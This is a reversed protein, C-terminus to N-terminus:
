TLYPVDAFDVEYQILLGNSDAKAIKKRVEQIFMKENNIGGMRRASNLYFYQGARWGQTFSNFTGTLNPYGYRYLLMDGRANAADITSQSLAQETHAYEYRGDGNGDAAAAAQQAEPDERMIVTDQLYYMTVVVPVGQAPAFNLRLLHQSYNIFASTTDSTNQGPAGDIFDRKIDMPVGGVTVRVDGALRSPQYGLNWQTTNGDGIFTLTIPTGARSKFGKLYVRTKKQSGDEKLVLDSYNVVDTDCNLTNNPLPSVFSEIPYFHVDKYYDVYWWFDLTDAIKKIAESPQVYNFYQPPIVFAPQVNNTTFGPCFKSVIQKVMADAAMQNYYGIVLHRDLWREYSQATVRYELDSGIDTEEVTTVVGGFERNGNNLWIIENGDKPRPLEGRLRIILDMTDSTMVV